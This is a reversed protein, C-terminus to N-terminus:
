KEEAPYPFRANIAAIADLWEQETKEGRQWQFFIPDAEQQYAGRRMSDIYDKQWNNTTM